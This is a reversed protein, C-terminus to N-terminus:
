GGIHTTDKSNFTWTGEICDYSITEVLSADVYTLCIGVNKEKYSVRYSHRQNGTKKVVIDGCELLDIISSSISEINDVEVKFCSNEVLLNHKRKFELISSKSNVKFNNM